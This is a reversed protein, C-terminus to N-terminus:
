GVGELLERAHARSADTARGALMRSLEDVREDGGVVKVRSVTRGSVERKHVVVQHHAQSAVQALHTVVLVQHAAGLAAMAAGVAVAAEGGIGADVEDFVLTEPGATLVLRLALMARALEGGSAVRALPLTPEGPNAGLQFSVEDGPPPGGVVVELRARNMGLARLEAQVADALRPAAVARADAVAEAAVRTATLLEDRQHELAAVQAGYSELEVRRAALRAQEAIVEALTEGYKRRLEFLLQRRARVQGLRAPDEAIAEHAQRLDSSLDELEAVLSRLRDAEASLTARGHLLALATRLADLGHGDGGLSELAAAAHEQDEHADALRQELLELLEDEHPDTLAARDLEELQYSLLDLERLRSREDGGLGVLATEVEGVAAALRRLETLEIGAFRDLAQRQAVASLLSQHAHQGHLDVLRAGWEALAGVTALRGNVYARSRGDVPVVRALVLESNEFTFRGEVRAEDAGPRVLLPDVRGGVLLDIAEVVLTKGAGTEGTLATMGEHLVLSLDDIVGLNEVHLETLM